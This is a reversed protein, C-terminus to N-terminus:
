RYTIKYKPDMYDNLIEHFSRHELIQGYHFLVMDNYQYPNSIDLINDVKGIFFQLYYPKKYNEEIMNGMYQVQVWLNESKKNQLLVFDSIHIPTHYRFCFEFEKNGIFIDKKYPIYEEKEITESM